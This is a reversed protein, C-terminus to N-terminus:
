KNKTEKLLQKIDNRMEHVERYSREERKAAEDFRRDLEKMVYQGHVEHNTQWSLRSQQETKIVDKTHTANASVIILALGFKKYTESATLVKLIGSLIWAM